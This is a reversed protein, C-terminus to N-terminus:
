ASLLPGIMGPAVHRGLHPADEDDVLRYVIPRKEALLSWLPLILGTVLGFEDEAFEPTAACENEWLGEFTRAEAPAWASEDFETTLMKLRENPRILEVRPLVAGTEEDTLATAGRVFAARHSRENVHLANPSAGYGEYLSALTLPRNRTRRAIKLLKTEAKTVPDRRLVHAEIVRLSDAVISEAGIDLTGAMRAAEVRTELIEEFVAFLANQVGIPLALLRNLFRRIPPLDEKLTGDKDLLDLGTMDEFADLSVGGQAGHALRRFFLRLADKAESSELNDEPRFLGQGGTQREGKTLAGLADLRRAITSLFRKEGKVNTAVPRFLPASAQHTRHSRGLGQVAADAKWGAELLYHVRRKQNRRGLDAHYSRGTGGAESFILVDKAGDMFANTEALNVSGPRTEIEVREGGLERKRVVRRRRGTIEAVREPGFSWLLQDLASAVAPLACLREIMAARRELAEQSHVPNGGEDFVPEAIETGDEKLVVRHLQTPFSNVLYDMVAERPSLDFNGDKLDLPSVEALRRDMVAEGTSVIQVVAARGEELDGRIAKILTPVKMATLMHNFFRQKAGEFASRAAAVAHRNKSGEEDIVGMAELAANLNHHIIKFADAYSDYIEMQEPTLAHDLFEYEVGDFSLNRACYLGMAKLDRCVMEMAAVGGKNMESIFQERSTFPAEAGRWLGLREAYALNEVASAGTASAYLIRANPARMQLEVGARGQLSAAKLGRDSKAAAANQMAHAEDFAIVGDFDDGLWELLQDLRSAKGDRSGVRLTAFTTFLVGEFAGIRRGLKARSQPIVEHACGGLATWDRIADKVLKDSKSIWVAKRRGKSWNDMVVGAIQRGKGCGTGDGIFYGSRLRFTEADGERAETVDGTVADRAFWGSLFREHAEGAYIVSELQADSLVGEAVLSALLHPRYSPAPPAVSALATSQTLPTPHPRAGAIKVRAVRYPQYIGADAELRSASADIVEYALEEGERRAARFVPAAQRTGTKKPPLARRLPRRPAGSSAGSRPPLAAIRAILEELGGTECAAGDDVGGEERKLKDIVLLRTSVSAGRRAYVVPDVGAALRLRGQACLRRWFSAYAPAGPALGHNVIAVLRGGPALRKMASWVHAAAETQHPGRTVSESFPPNMLVVSPRDLAPLLDDIQAADEGHVDGKFLDKLMERRLPDIENLLLRAGAVRAFVALGGHGASPELVLDGEGIEAALFAAYAYPVPTSFQQLGASEETRLRNSPQLGGLAELRALVDRPDGAILAPGARLIHLIEAAEAADYADKWSWRGVADSGGYVATTAARLRARTIPQGLSLSPLLVRAAALRPPSPQPEPHSSPPSDPARPESISFLDM